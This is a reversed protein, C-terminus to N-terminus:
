GVKEVKGGETPHWSAGRWGREGGVGRRSGKRSVPGHLILFPGCHSAPLWSFAAGPAWTEGSRQWVGTYHTGNVPVRWAPGLEDWGGLSHPHYLRPAPLTPPHLPLPGLTGGQKQILWAWSEIKQPGWVEPRVMWAQHFPPWSHYINISYRSYAKKTREGGM